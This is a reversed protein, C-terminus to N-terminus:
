PWGNEETCEIIKQMFQPQGSYLLALSHLKRDQAVHSPQNEFADQRERQECEDDPPRQRALAVAVLLVLDFCILM